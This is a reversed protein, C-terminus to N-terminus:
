RRRLMVAAALAALALVGVVVGVGLLPSQQSRPASADAGDERVEDAAESTATGRADVPDVLKGVSTGAPTAAAAELLHDAQQWPRATPAITADLLVAALRRGDFSRAGVFTHNADDTYGTKGGLADDHSGLLQNDNWVEFPENDGYGPFPIFRQAVIRSFDPNQWAHRYMLALDYASTSMGPADLGSYSAVRTSQTGLRGALANVKKLAATDGGLEQALAHATDNGSAMLLGSLLQEVTYVGGPGIGVASGEMAASEESVEVEKDLPLEELAVLALLVKIISAPRYRGHPDRAAIVEGSDIDFVIWSTATLDSPVEFGPESVVECDRLRAGGAKTAAEPLPEPSPAGPKPVESTDVPPPPLLSFPCSSTDRPTAPTTLTNPTDTASPEASEVSEQSLVLEHADSLDLQAVHRGTPTEPAAWAVHPATSIVLASLAAASIRSRAVAGRHIPSYLDM